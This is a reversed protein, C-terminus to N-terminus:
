LGISVFAGLDLMGPRLVLDVDQGDGSAKGGTSRFYRLVPGARLRETVRFEWALGGQFTVGDARLSGTSYHFWGAGGDLRLGLLPHWAATVGLLTLTRGVGQHEGDWRMGEVGLRIGSAVRRDLGARVTWGDFPGVRPGQCGDCHDNVSGISVAATVAWDQSPSQAAAIGTWLLAWPLIGSLTIRRM